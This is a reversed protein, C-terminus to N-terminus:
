RGAKKSPDLHCGHGRHWERWHGSGASRPMNGHPCRTPVESKLCIRLQAVVFGGVSGPREEEDAELAVAWRELRKITARHRKVEALLNAAHVHLHFRFEEVDDACHDREPAPLRTSKEILADLATDTLDSM